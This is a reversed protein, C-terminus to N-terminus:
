ALEVHAEPGIEVTGDRESGGGLALAEVVPKDPDDLGGCANGGRRTRLSVIRFSGRGFARRFSAALCGAASPLTRVSLMLQVGM